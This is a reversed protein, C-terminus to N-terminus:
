AKLCVLDITAAWREPKYLKTLVSAALRGLRSAGFIPQVHYPQSIVRFGLGGVFARFESPSFFTVHGTDVDYANYRSPSFALLVGGRRLVRHIDAFLRRNEDITFHDVVQNLVVVGCTGAEFPLDEGAAWPRVDAEPHRTRCEALAHASMELGTAAVGFRRACEVLFGYGCGVDVLPPGTAHKLSEALLPRYDLWSRDAYAVNYTGWWDELQSRADAETM